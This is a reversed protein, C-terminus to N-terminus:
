HIVIIPKSIMGMTTRFLVYYVGSPVATMDIERSRDSSSEAKMNEAFIEEGLSNIVRYSLLACNWTMSFTASTPNPSVTIDDEAAPLEDVASVVGTLDMGGAYGYSNAEGYGYIYIGIPEDAAITHAGETMGDAGNKGGLWAYSYENSPPIPVFKTVDVPKGDLKITSLTSTPAVVTIYQEVYVGAPNRSDYAQVNYFRYSKLFQEKPPIILMFPDSLPSAGSPTPNGGASKKFHAVLIPKNATITQAKLIGGTYEGGANLYSRLSIGDIFVQTSDYAALIRYVDYGNSAADAPLPYPTLFANKGWARVPPMQEILCDRSLLTDAFEIPVTARQQGAFVAIPKTSTVHSGTLDSRLNQATIKAQVLYSEGQNLTITQPSLGYNYTATKPTITITTNDETALVAFQSPTSPGAIGSSGNGKGDSNYALVYYEQGLVKTPLVVFADSTTTAQSLAYVGIEQDAIVHFNQSAIDETQNNNVITSNQNFGVLEFNRWGISFSYVVTPDTIQFTKQRIVGVKDRYSISGGTPVEAVIYIFLSDTATNNQHFNPIFTLWFDKGKTTIATPQAVTSVSPLIISVLAILLFCRIMNIKM